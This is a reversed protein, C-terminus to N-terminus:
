RPYTTKEALELYKSAKQQEPIERFWKTLLHELGYLYSNFDVSLM